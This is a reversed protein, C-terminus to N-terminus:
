APESFQRWWLEARESGAQTILTARFQIMFGSVAAVFDELACPVRDWTPDGPGGSISSARVSVLVEGGTREFHFAPQGQEGEDFVHAALDSTAVTRSVVALEHVWTNFCVDDPGFFGLSPLVNGGVVIQLLGHVHTNEDSLRTLALREDSADAAYTWLSGFNIEVTM